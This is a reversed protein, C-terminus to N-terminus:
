PRQPHLQAIAFRGADLESLAGSNGGHVRHSVLPRVITLV